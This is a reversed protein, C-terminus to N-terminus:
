MVSPSIHKLAEDVEDKWTPRVSIVKWSLIQLENVFQGETEWPWQVQNYFNCVLSSFTKGSEFLTKLYGILEEYDWTSNTDLYSEVM